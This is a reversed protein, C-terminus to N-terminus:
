QITSKAYLAIAVTVGVVIIIILFHSMLWDTMPLSTAATSLDGSSTLTEYTNGLFLAVVCVAIFLVVSVAFFIPHTDILFSAALVMIWLLVFSFIIIGDMLSPYRTNMTDVTAKTETSFDDQAQVDTNIDDFVPRMILAILVFAFVVVAVVLSDVIANGRKKIKM